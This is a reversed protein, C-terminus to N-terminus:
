RTVVTASRAHAPTLETMVVSGVHSTTGASGGSDAAAACPVGHMAFVAALMLLATRLRVAM